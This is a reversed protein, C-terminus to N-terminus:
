SQQQQSSFGCVQRAQRCGWLEEMWISPMCAAAVSAAAHMTCSMIVRAAWRRASAADEEYHKSCQQQQSCAEWGCRMGPTAYRRRLAAAQSHMARAKRANGVTYHLTTVRPCVEM